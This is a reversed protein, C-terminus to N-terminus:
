LKVIDSTAGGSAESVFRERMAIKVGFTEYMFTVTLIRATVAHERFSSPYRRKASTPAIIKFSRMPSKVAYFVRWTDSIQGFIESSLFLLNTTM